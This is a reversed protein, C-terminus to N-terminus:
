LAIGIVMTEKQNLDIKQLNRLINLLTRMLNLNVILDM